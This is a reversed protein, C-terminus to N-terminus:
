PARLVRAVDARLRADGADVEAYTVARRCRAARRLTRELARTHRPRRDFDQPRIDIRVTHGIRGLVARALRGKPREDCTMVVVADGARRREQLWANLAPTLPAGPDLCLTVRRIGLDTLWERILTCHEFTAPEIGQLGVALRAHHRTM